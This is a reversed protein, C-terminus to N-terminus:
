FPFVTDWRIFGDADGRETSWISSWIYLGSTLMPDQFPSASCVRVTVPFPILPVARWDWKLRSKCSSHSVEGSCHDWVKMGGLGSHVVFGSGQALPRPTHLYCHIRLVLGRHQYWHLVIQLLYSWRQHSLGSLVLSVVTFLLRQDTADLYMAEGEKKLAM